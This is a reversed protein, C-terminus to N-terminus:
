ICSLPELTFLRHMFMSYKQLFFFWVVVSLSSFLCIVYNQEANVPHFGSPVCLRPHRPTQPEGRGEGSSIFPTCLATHPLEHQTESFPPAGRAAGRYLASGQARPARGQAGNCGPLHGQRTGRQGAGWYGARCGSGGLLGWQVGTVLGAGWQVGIVVGAGVQQVGIVVAPHQQVGIVVGASWYGSRGVGM